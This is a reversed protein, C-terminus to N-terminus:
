KRRSMTRSLRDLIKSINLRAINQPIMNQVDELGFSSDSPYEIVKTSLTRGSNTHKNSSKKNPTKQTKKNLKREGNQTNNSSLSESETPIENFQSNLDSNRLIIEEELESEDISNNDSNLKEKSNMRTIRLITPISSVSVILSLFLILEGIEFGPIIRSFLFVFCSFIMVIGIILINNRIINVM